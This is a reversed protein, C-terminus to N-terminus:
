TVDHAARPAHHRAEAKYVSLGRRQTDQWFPADEGLTKRLSKASYTKMFRFLDRQSLQIDMSSFYLAAIDKVRWRHPTNKRIQMRHLDILYLASLNHSLQKNEDFGCKLLFHVLYFDRHNAGSNHMDRAIRAVKTILWRKFRIDNASTPPTSQWKECFDELSTTNELAETIIFSQKRAPNGDVMGYGAPTMTKVSIRDLHHIGHWENQAGLVPKNLYSLNKFIEKWGVGTHRKLFYRKGDFEFRVTRRGPAQRIIQGETAMINQIDLPREYRTALADSLYINAKSDTNDGTNLLTNQASAEHHKVWHEIASVATEPMIYLEPNQGYELGNKRWTDRKESTLMLALQQNLNNQDFPSHLILGANAKAIHPAYGCVDTAIVPLGSIIAELIVTGTNESYAPHILLDGALMLEPVDDRGGLFKIHPNLELQDIQRQYVKVANDQGVIYLHTQKKLADPLAHVAAIVRDLGKTKFGSGIFLLLCGDKKIGLADRKQQRKQAYDGSLKRTVDLTPPMLVFRSAPTGYHQQYVSMERPSLSFITTNEDAHFVSREFTHQYHYRPTIRYIPAYQPKARAVYCYDAGYYIDLGPMKNFGVIADYHKNKTAEKFQRHFQANRGHNTLGSANLVTINIQDKFGNQEDPRDGQWKSVYVDVSHGREVAEHLIRLFDRALGSYPFYNYLAFAFHM